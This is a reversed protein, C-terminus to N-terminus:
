IHILSLDWEARHPVVEADLFERALTRFARQEDTLRFDM